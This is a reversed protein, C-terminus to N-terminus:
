LVSFQFFNGLSQKGKWTTALRHKNAIQNFAKSILKSLIKHIKALWKLWCMFLPSYLNYIKIIMEAM